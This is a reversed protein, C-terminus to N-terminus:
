QWPDTDRLKAKKVHVPENKLEVRRLKDRVKAMKAERIEDYLELGALLLKKLVLGEYAEIDVHIRLKPDFGRFDSNSLRDAEENQLRPLWNLELHAGQAQLVAAM